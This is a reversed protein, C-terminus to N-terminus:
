GVREFARILVDHLLRATRGAEFESAVADFSESVDLTGNRRRTMLDTLAAAIAAVDQPPAVACGLRRLLRASAGPEPTLGLIPKRFPLYDILKSPLFASPGDSPADIVLLVDAEAAMSAALAPAVRGHFRVVPAVGLARADPEFDAVGPGVFAVEIAGALSQRTGLLALAELLPRPTRLGAYFRGTYILRLPATEAVRSSPIPCSEATQASHSRTAAHSRADFGHPVVHVKRRWQKPYKAMVLDATEETVFVVATAERIVDEEMRRWISRQRPTAYPSDVWPDSFHAAWPLGTRRSVRLGVLHNSWPQAFTILGAWGDGAAARAAADAARAVWVRAPDPFDRLPPALRWAARVALWEEPSPVRRMEVGPPPDVAAGNPWHPGGRRPDLCVALPRWGLAALGGLARAVQTGRPGYMPPMEWSVALLRKL